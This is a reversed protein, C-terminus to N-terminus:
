IIWAKRLMGDTTNNPTKLSEEKKITKSNLSLSAELFEAYDFDNDFFNIDDYKIDVNFPKLWYQDSLSLGFAKDLLEDSTEINLRHLLLDLKDRWSPIGRGKFWETLRNLLLLEDKEEEYYNKLLLPAYDIDIIEYMRDFIGFGTNYEVFLVEKNKNMLTCKMFRDEM